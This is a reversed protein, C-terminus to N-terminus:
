GRVGFYVAMATAVAALAWPAIARCLCFAHTAAIRARLHQTAPDDPPLAEVCYTALTADRRAIACEVLRRAISERLTAARGNSPWLVLAQGLREIAKAFNCYTTEPDLSEREVDGVIRRSQERRDAGVVCDQLARVFEGATAIRDGPELAMSRRVLDILGPPTPRGELATELPVSEGMMAKAYVERADTGERPPRGTLLYYLTAGLLYVDTRPGIRQPTRETQEPAMFSPTGAPNSASEHDPLLQAGVTSVERDVTQRDYVMALGWDMLVTEGFEGIMVQQPKIDRHVIGRSHAYAIAQAVVVLIPLHRALYEDRDMTALDRRVIEDWRTGRVFKMAIMLHGSTDWALDHIPVIGPHELTAMTLAEQRFATEAQWLDAPSRSARAVVDARLSKVAVVRDLSEQVAERVEGFGGAGITRGFRYGTTATAAEARPPPPGDFDFSDASDISSSLSSLKTSRLTANPDPHLEEPPAAVDRM